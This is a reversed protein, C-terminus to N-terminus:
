YNVQSYKEVAEDYKELDDVLDAVDVRRMLKDANALTPNEPKLGIYARVMDPDKRCRVNMTKSKDYDLLGTGGAIKVLKAKNEVYLLERQLEGFNCYTTKEEWNALLYDLQQLGQKLRRPDNVSFESPYAVEVAYAISSSSIIFVSSATVFALLAGRLHNARFLSLKRPLMLTPSAISSAFLLCALVLVRRYYAIM